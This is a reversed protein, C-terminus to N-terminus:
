SRARPMPRAGFRWFPFDGTSGRGTALVQPEPLPRGGLRARVQAEIENMVREAEALHGHDALWRPSEPVLFRIAFLFLSPIAQALFVARWDFYQLLLLSLLGASIFGLPWFGELVAMYRGRNGAPLFESAIALAVPFEMGMGFGLLLRAYGLTVANPAVSCWLSGLGWFIMSLQFVRKRGFRDAAMGALSAGLFM